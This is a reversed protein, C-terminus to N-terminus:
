TGMCPSRNRPAATTPPAGNVSFSDGAAVGGNATIQNQNYFLVGPSLHFSNHWPFWDFSAQVSRFNVAGTYTVGETTGDANYNFFNGAVRLNVSRSISTAAGVGIGLPSVFAGAGFQHFLWSGSVTYAPRQSVVAGSAPSADWPPASATDLGARSSSYLMSSSPTEAASDHLTSQQAFSFSVALLVTVCLTAQRLLSM